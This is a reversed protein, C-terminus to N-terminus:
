KVEKPTLPNQDTKTYDKQGAADNKNQRDGDDKAEVTFKTPFEKRARVELRDRLSKVEEIPWSGLFTTKKKTGDEDDPMEKLLRGFKLCDDVLSKRYADGDAAKTTLTAIQADKADLAAAIEDAATDETIEKGLKAAIAKLWKMPTSGGKDIPASTHAESAEDIDRAKQATAGPQAGLWVLSGELAEGKPKYEDFLRNGHQDTIAERHEAKFGISVHRYVGGDLNAIIGGNEAIKLLYAWCWLVKVMSVGEPLNPTEGTLATFQEATMTETTADFFLGKGPPGWQHGWLLGKSPMTRAFDDLLAESFRERDRDIANHALLFKRVYVQDATLPVIAFDTNIKALQEDTVSGSDAGVAISVQKKGYKM